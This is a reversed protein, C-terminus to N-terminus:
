HMDPAVFITATIYQWHRIVNWNFNIKLKKCIISPYGNLIRM